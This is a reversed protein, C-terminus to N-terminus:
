GKLLPRGEVQAARGNKAEIAARSVATHVIAKQSGASAEKSRISSIAISNPM